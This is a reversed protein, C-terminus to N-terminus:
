VTNGVIIFWASSVGKRARKWYNAPLKGFGGDHEVSRSALPRSSASGDVQSPAAGGAGSPLTASSTAM